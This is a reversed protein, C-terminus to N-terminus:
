CVGVGSGRLIKYIEPTLALAVLSQAALWAIGVGSIGTRPMLIVGLALTGAAMCGPVLVVDRLKGQVRAVGLYLYNVSVPLASPILWWLLQRGEMAYDAGYLRLIWEGAVLLVAVAPLLVLATLKLSHRLDNGIRDERHSGEAFLSTATSMPISFTLSAIGWTVYFYANDVAGLLNLVVLPMVWRPINWFGNSIYNAFSFRLMEGTIQKRVAPVSRCDPLLQPLFWGFGLALAVGAGIGWSAMIGSFGLVAALLAVSVVKLVNFILGSTLTFEARRLGIFVNAMLSYASWIVVLCIFGAALVLSERVALLAPSWLSLGALFVAGALISTLTVVTLSSGIIAARDRGPAPLFRIVGYDMGLSSIFALLTAASIAASGLGVDEASYCRAAVLWFIFGVGANVGSNLLLYISNTHLSSRFIRQLKEM